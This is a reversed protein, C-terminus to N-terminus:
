RKERWIARTILSAPVSSKRGKRRGSKELVWMEKVKMREGIEKERVDGTKTRWLRWNRRENRNQRIYSKWRTYWHAHLQESEGRGKGKGRRREFIPKQTWCCCSGALTNLSPTESTYLLAPVVNRQVFCCFSSFLRLCHFQCAPFDENFFAM